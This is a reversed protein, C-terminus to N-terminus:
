PALYFKTLITGIWLLVAAIYLVLAIKDRTDWGKEFFSNGANDRHSQYSLVAGVLACVLGTVGLLIWLWDM